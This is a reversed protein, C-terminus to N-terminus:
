RNLKCLRNRKELTLLAKRCLEHSAPFDQEMAAKQLEDIMSTIGKQGRTCDWTDTAPQPVPRKTGCNPCFNGTIGKEGCVCDWSVSRPAAPAAPATPATNQSQGGFMPAMAEKTMGMIGSMAGLTVGLGAIDGLAGGGGNSGMQGYTSTLKDTHVDITYGCPCDIKKRAFFGTKTEAFKGCQPCEIVFKSMIQRKM